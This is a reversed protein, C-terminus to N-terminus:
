QTVTDPGGLVQSTESIIVARDAAFSVVLDHVGTGRSHKGRAANSADFDYVARVHCFTSGPQCMVTMTEPRYRYHREPWREMFRRKENLLNQLSVPRGHFVVTSGYFAPTAQIARHNEASWADLYSIALNRASEEQSALRAVWPPQRIAADSSPMQSSLATQSDPRPPRGRPVSANTGTAPKPTHAQESPNHTDPEPVVEPDKSPPVMSNVPPDVWIRGTQALTAPAGLVVSAVATALAQRWRSVM